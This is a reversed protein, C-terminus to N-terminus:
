WSKLAEDSTIRGAPRTVRKMARTSAWRGVNASSAARRREEVQLKVSPLVAIGAENGALPIGLGHDIRGIRRLGRIEQEGDGPKCRPSDRKALVPRSAIM